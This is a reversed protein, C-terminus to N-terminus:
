NLLEPQYESDGFGLIPWFIFPLFILGLTFGENKGFGKAIRNIIWISWIIGIFPIFKLLGLSAAGEPRLALIWIIGIYPIFQLLVWFGPKRAIRCMIIMNYIPVISAWGHEGSKEFIKWRSAIMFVIFGLVLLIIFIESGGIFLLM